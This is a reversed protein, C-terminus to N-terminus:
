SALSIDNAMKYALVKEDRTPKAKGINM